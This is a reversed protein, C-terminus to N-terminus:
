GRRMSLFHDLIRRLDGRCIRGHPGLSSAAVVAGGVFCVSLFYWAGVQWWAAAYADVSEM